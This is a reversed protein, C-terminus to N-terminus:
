KLNRERTPEVSAPRTYLLAWAGLAVCLLEGIMPLTQGEWWFRPFDLAGDVASLVLLVRCAYHQVTDWVNGRGLALRHAPHLMGFVLGVTVAVNYVTLASM